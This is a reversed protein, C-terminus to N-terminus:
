PKPKPAKYAGESLWSRLPILGSYVATSCQPQQHAVFSTILITSPLYRHFGDKHDHGGNHDLKEWGLDKM